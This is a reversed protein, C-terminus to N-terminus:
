HFSTSMLKKTDDIIKKRSYDQLYGQYFYIKDDKIKSSDNRVSKMKQKTTDSFLNMIINDLILGGSM